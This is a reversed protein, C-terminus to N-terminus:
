CASCWVVILNGVGLCVGGTNVAGHELEEGFGARAEGRGGTGSCLSSEESSDLVGSALRGGLPWSRCRHGMFTGCKGNLHAAAISEYVGRASVNVFPPGM